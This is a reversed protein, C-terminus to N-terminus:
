KKARLIVAGSSYGDDPNDAGWDDGDINRYCFRYLDRNAWFEELSIAVTETEYSSNVIAPMWWLNEKDDSYVSKDNLKKYLFYSDQKDPLVLDSPTMNLARAIRAVHEETERGSYLLYGAANFRMGETSIGAKKLVDKQPAIYTHGNNLPVTLRKTSLDTLKLQKENNSMQEIKPTNRVSLVYKKFAELKRSSVDNNDLINEKPKYTDFEDLLDALEPNTNRVGNINIGSSTIASAM